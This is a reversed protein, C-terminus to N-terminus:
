RGQDMILQPYANGCDESLPGEEEDGSLYFVPDMDIEFADLTLTQPDIIKITKLGESGGKDFFFVENQCFSALFLSSQPYLKRSIVQGQIFCGRSEDFTETVLLGKFKHPKGLEGSPLVNM